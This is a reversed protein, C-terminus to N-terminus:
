VEQLRLNIQEINDLIIDNIVKEDKFELLINITLNEDAEGFDYKYKLNRDKVNLNCCSLVSDLDSMVQLKEIQDQEGYADFTNFYIIQLDMKKNVLYKNDTSTNNYAFDFLFAPAEHEKPLKLPYYNYGSLKTKFREIIAMFVDLLSVM